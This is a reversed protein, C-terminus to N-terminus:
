TILRLLEERIQKRAGYLENTYKQQNFPINKTLNNVSQGM